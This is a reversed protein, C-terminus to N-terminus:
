LDLRIFSAMFAVEDDGMIQHNLFRFDSALKESIFKM